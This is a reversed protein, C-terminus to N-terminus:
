SAKKSALSSLDIGSLISRAADEPLGYTQVHVLFREGVLVTAEGSTNSTEWKVHGPYAGIKMSKEYGDTTERSYNMNLLFQFPIYLLPIYAFDSIEVDAYRTGDANSYHCSAKSYTWEGMTSTEGDPKGPPLDGVSKPLFQMLVRFNVAPAPKNDGTLSNQSAEATKAIGEMAKKFQQAQQAQKACGAIAVAVLLAIFGVLTSKMLIEKPISTDRSFKRSIGTRIL